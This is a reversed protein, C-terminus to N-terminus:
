RITESGELINRDLSPQQNGYKSILAAKFFIYWLDRHYRSTDLHCKRCLSVLNDDNCNTKDYDIHHVDLKRDLKDESVGCLFCKRSDRDRIREKTFFNFDKTYGTSFFTTCGFKRWMRWSHLVRFKYSNKKGYRPNKEGRRSESLEKIYEVYSINKLIDKIKKGKRRKSAAKRYELSKVKSYGSKHHKNYFGNKEKKSWGDYVTKEGFMKEYQKPTMDHKKLHSNTIAKFNKGCVRCTMM